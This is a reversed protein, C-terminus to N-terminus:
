ASKQNLFCLLEERMEKLNKYRNNKSHAMAKEVIDVLTIPLKSNREHLSIYKSEKDLITELVNIVGVADDNKESFPQHGCLLFFLMAGLSYIMSLVDEEGCELVEPACCYNITIIRSTPDKYSAKNFIESFYPNILYLDSNNAIIHSPKLSFYEDNYKWTNEVIKSLECIVNVSKKIEFLHSPNVAQALSIGPIYEQILFLDTGNYKSYHGYYWGKLKAIKHIQQSYAFRIQSIVENFAWTYFIGRYVTYKEKTNIDQCFFHKVYKKENAEIVKFEYLHEFLIGQCMQCKPIKENLMGCDKCKMTLKKPLM